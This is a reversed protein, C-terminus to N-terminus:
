LDNGFRIFQFSYTKSNLSASTFEYARVGGRVIVNRWDVSM